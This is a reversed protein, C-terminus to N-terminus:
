QGSSGWGNKGRESPPLQDIWEVKGGWVPLLVLQALRTGAEIGVPHEGVNTARIILEGRYGSDIVADRVDLGYRTFTSSRACMWGFYGEPIAGYVGTLLSATQGPKIEVEHQIALDIGADGRYKGQQANAAEGTILFPPPESTLTETFGRADPQPAVLMSALDAAPLTGDENIFLLAVGRRNWAAIQVSSAAFLSTTVILTPRNLSIAHEIEAPTGLTPKNPMLIAILADAEWIAYRNISDVKAGHDVQLPGYALQHASVPRFLSHGQQQAMARVSAIAVNLPDMHELGLAQDIPHALYIYSM